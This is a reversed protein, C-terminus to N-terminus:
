VRLNLLPLQQARSDYLTYKCINLESCHLRTVSSPSLSVNPYYHLFPFKCMDAIDSYIVVSDVNFYIWPWTMYALLYKCKSSSPKMKKRVVNAYHMQRESVYLWGFVLSAPIDHKMKCIYCITHYLVFGRAPDWIKFPSFRIALCGPKGHNM